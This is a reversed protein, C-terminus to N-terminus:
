EKAGETSVNSFASPNTMEINYLIDLVIHNNLVSLHLFAIKQTIISNLPSQSSCFTGYSSVPLTHIRFSCALITKTLCFATWLLITMNCLYINSNLFLVLFSAETLDIPDPDLYPESCTSPTLCTSTAAPFHSCM